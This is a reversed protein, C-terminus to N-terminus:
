KRMEIALENIPPITAIANPAAVAAM